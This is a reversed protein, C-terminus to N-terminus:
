CFKLGFVGSFMKEISVKGDGIDDLARVVTIVEQANVEIGTAYLAQQLEAPDLYGCGDADREIFANRLTEDKGEGQCKLKKVVLSFSSYPYTQPHDEMYSYTYDDAEVLAFCRCYIMLKAGVFCDTPVYDTGCEKQVKMRELFKGGIIGSNRTPPEFISMTDDALFYQVVFKRDLDANTLTKGPTEILRASFRLIKKENLMLKFLDRKAPKPILSICNQASDTTSGFGNHPPLQMQPLPINPEAVDLPALAELPYGIVQNLYRRTFHDCDHIFMDRGYINITKGVMFDDMIYYTYTKTPGLADVEIPKNPMPGRRCFVPFPDRGNNPENVELVEVTDDALFYHIVYPRRDGYLAERDDWLCFFRLVKRDNQIFKKLDQGSTAKGLKAEIFKRLDNGGTNKPLTKHAHARYACIPEEPAEFDAPVEVGSNSLFNRTFPDCATIHFTRAYFTVETAVNLDEVGFFANGKPIRHRKLFVGQPIGSNPQKPEAVHVSEDELYFYIICKRIRHNEEPSDVVAEKFYAYFRLVKRDYAVWAPLTDLAPGTALQPADGKPTSAKPAVRARPMHQRPDEFTCGPLKPIPITTSM